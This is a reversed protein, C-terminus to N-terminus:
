SDNRNIESLLAVFTRYNKEATFCNQWLLRNRERLGTLSELSRSWLNDLADAVEEISPNPPLLINETDILMETIGGVSTAIIPIGFSLAEMISVPNGGETSSTTIFCDVIMSEYYCLVEANPLAGRFLFSINRKDSLKHEAYGLTEEFETGGGFHQWFVPFSHIRELADVILKVRKINVMNSCSVLNLVGSREYPLGVRTDVTGLRSLVHRGDQTVRFHQLYYKMGYESAFFVRDLKTDIFEKFPQRGDNRRENFLDYGHMRAVIKLSPYRDKYRALALLRSNSWYSYFLSCEDLLLGSNKSLWQYFDEAATFFLFSGILRRLVSKRLRFIASVEDRGERSLIYNLLHAFYRLKRLKGRKPSYRVICMSSDISRTKQSSLSNSVVQLRFAASLYGVEAELFTEGKGFPFDDTVLIMNPKM